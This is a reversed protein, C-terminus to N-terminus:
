RIGARRLCERCTAERPLFPMSRSVPLGCLTTRRFGLRTKRALHMGAPERQRPTTLVLRRASTVPGAAKVVAYGGNIIAAEAIEAPLYGKSVLDRYSREAHQPDRMRRGEKKYERVFDRLEADTKLVRIADAVMPRIQENPEMQAALAQLRQERTQPPRTARPDDYHIDILAPGRPKGPDRKKFM